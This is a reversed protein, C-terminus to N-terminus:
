LTKELLNPKSVNEIKPFMLHMTNTEVLPWSPFVDGDGSM